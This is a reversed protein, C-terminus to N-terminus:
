SRPEWEPYAARIRRKVASVARERLESNSPKELAELAVLCADLLMPANLILQRNGLVPDRKDKALYYQKEHSGDCAGPISCVQYRGSVVCGCELISWAQQSFRNSM